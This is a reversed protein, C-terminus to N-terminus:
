TPLATRVGYGISNDQERDILAVFRQFGHEKLSRVISDRIPTARRLHHLTLRKSASVARTDPKITGIRM